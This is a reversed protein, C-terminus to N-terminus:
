TSKMISLHPCASLSKFSISAFYVICECAIFSYLRTQLRSLSAFKGKDKHGKDPMTAKPLFTSIVFFNPQIYLTLCIDADIQLYCSM